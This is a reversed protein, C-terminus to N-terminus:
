DHINITVIIRGKMLFTRDGDFRAAWQMRVTKTGAAVNLKYFSACRTISSFRSAAELLASGPTANSGGVLAHVYLEEGDYDATHEGCYSVFVDARKGSPITISQSLGPINAWEVSNTFADDVYAVAYRTTGAPRMTAPMGASVAFSVAQNVMIIIVGAIVFRLRHLM